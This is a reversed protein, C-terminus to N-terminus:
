ESLRRIYYFGEGCPFEPTQPAGGYFLISFFSGKIEQSNEM